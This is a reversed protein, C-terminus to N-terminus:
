HHIMQLVLKARDVAAAERLTRHGRPGRCRRTDVQWALLARAAASGEYVLEIGCDASSEIRSRHSPCPAPDVPELERDLRDLETELFVRIRDNVARDLASGVGLACVKRVIELRQDEDICPHLRRSDDYGFVAARSLMYEFTVSDLDPLGGTNFWLRVFLDADVQFYTLM